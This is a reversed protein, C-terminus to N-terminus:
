ASVNDIDDPTESTIPSLMLERFQRSMEAQEPYKEEWEARPIIFGIEQLKAWLAEEVLAKLDKKVPVPNVHWQVLFSRSDDHHQHAQFYDTDIYLRADTVVGKEIRCIFQAAGFARPESPPEYGPRESQAKLLEKDAEVSQEFWSRAANGCIGYSSGYLATFGFTIPYGATSLHFCFVDRM